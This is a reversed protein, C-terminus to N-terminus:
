KSRTEIITWMTGIDNEDYVTLWVNIEKWATRAKDAKDTEGSQTYELIKERYYLWDLCLEELDNPRVDLSGDKKAVFVEKYNSYTDKYQALEGAPVILKLLPTSTPSLTELSSPTVTPVLEPQTTASPFIAITSESTPSTASVQTFTKNSSILAIALFSLCCVLIFGGVLLLNRNTSSKKKQAPTLLQSVVREQQYDPQQSLPRALQPAPSPIQNSLKALANRANQNNPNIELVKQLCYKKQSTNDVSSYLWLWATENNPEIQVIEKLIPLAAQKNGAKILQVAQTLKESIM